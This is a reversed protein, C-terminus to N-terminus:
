RVTDLADKRVDEYHLMISFAHRKLVSGLGRLMQDGKNTSTKFPHKNPFYYACEFFSAFARADARM